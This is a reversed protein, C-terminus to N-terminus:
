VGRAGAWETCHKRSGVLTGTQSPPYLPPPYHLPEASAMPTAPFSLVLLLGTDWLALPLLASRM